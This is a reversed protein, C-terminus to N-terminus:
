HWTFQRKMSPSQAVVDNDTLERLTLEALEDRM